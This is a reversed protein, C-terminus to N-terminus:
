QVMAAYREDILKKLDEYSVAGGVFKDNVFLGPTGNASIGYHVGEKTDAAVSSAYKQTDLCSQFDKLNLKSKKAKAQLFTQASKTLEDLNKAKAFDEIMAAQDEFIADHIQWFKDQDGACAAGQALLSDVGGRDYHKYIFDVKNGYEKLIKKLVQHLEACHSCTFSSYEILQVYRTGDARLGLVNARGDPGIEPLQPTKFHQLPQLYVFYLDKNPILYRDLGSRQPHQDIKKDFIVQPLYTADLQQLLKQAEPSTYDLRREVLKTNQLGADPDVLSKLFVQLGAEQAADKTNYILTLPLQFIGTEATTIGLFKQVNTRFQPQYEYLGYILLFFALVGSCVIWFTRKEPLSRLFKEAGTKKAFFKKFNFM